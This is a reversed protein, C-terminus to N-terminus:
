RMSGPYVTEGRNWRQQLDRKFAERQAPTAKSYDFSVSSPAQSSAGSEVPRRSGSQVAASIKEATKRATVQATAQQIENRHIAYYVDEVSLGSNPATMRAFVPNQMESRLDFSPFVEKLAEAQQELNHFHREFRDREMSDLNEDMVEKSSRGEALAIGDYNSEDHSFAEILSDYDPNNPDIEQGYRQATISLIPALSKLTDEASKAGKIRNKVINQVETNLNPYQKLLDSLKPQSEEEAPHSDEAPATDQQAAPQENQQAAVSTPQKARRAMHKQLKDEPVGLDRLRQQGADAATDGTQAAAEGTGGEGAGEGGDAFVQLYRWLYNYM